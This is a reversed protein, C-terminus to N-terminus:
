GGFASLKESGGGEKFKFPILKAPDFDYWEEM